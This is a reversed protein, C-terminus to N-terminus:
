RRQNRTRFWRSPEDASSSVFPDSGVRAQASLCPVMEAAPWSTDKSFILADTQDDFDVLVLDGGRVQGTAILNSLPNVVHREISRKLHRAGYKLDAGERLLYEKGAESVSFVWPQTSVAGMIRQQVANLEISLIRRLETRGLPKFVVTRDIRNMFEPTFKRRCAEM